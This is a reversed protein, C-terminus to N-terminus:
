FARVPPCAPMRAPLFASLCAPHTPPRPPRLAHRLRISSCTCGCLAAHAMAPSLLQCQGAMAAAIFKDKEDKVVQQAKTLAGDLLAAEDMLAGEVRLAKDCSKNRHVGYVAHGYTTLQRSELEAVAAQAPVIVCM